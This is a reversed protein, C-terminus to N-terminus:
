ILYKGNSGNWKIKFSTNEYQGMENTKSSTSGMRAM